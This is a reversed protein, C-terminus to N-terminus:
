PAGISVCLLRYITDVILCLSLSHTTLILSVSVPLGQLLTPRSLVIFQLWLAMDKVAHEPLTSLISKQDNEICHDELLKTLWVAQTIYFESCYQVLLPDLM